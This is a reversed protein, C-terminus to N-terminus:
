LYYNEEIYLFIVYYQTWSPVLGTLGLHSSGAAGPAPGHRTHHLSAYEFIIQSICLINCPALIIKYICSYLMINREPPCVALFLNAAVQTVLHSYTQTKYVRM